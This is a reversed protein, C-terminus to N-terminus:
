GLVSEGAPPMVTQPPESPRECPHSGAPSAFPERRQVAQLGEPLADQQSLRGRAHRVRGERRAPHTGRRPPRARSDCVSPGYRGLQHGFDRRLQDTSCGTAQAIDHVRLRNDLHSRVFRTAAEVPSPASVWGNLLHDLEEYFSELSGNQRRSLLTRWNPESGDGLTLSLHQALDALVTAVIRHDTVSASRLRAGLSPKVDSWHRPDVQDIRAIFQNKERVARRAEDFVLPHMPALPLQLRGAM